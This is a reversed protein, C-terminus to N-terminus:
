FILKCGQVCKRTGSTIGQCLGLTTNECFFFYSACCRCTCRYSGPKRFKLFLRPVGNSVAFGSVGWSVRLQSLSSWKLCFLASAHTHTNTNTQPPPNSKNIVTTVFFNPSLKENKSPFFKCAISIIKLDEFDLSRQNLLNGKGLSHSCNIPSENGNKLSSHTHRCTHSFTQPFRLSM